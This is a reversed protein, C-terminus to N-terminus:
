PFTLILMSISLFAYLRLCTWYSVLTCKSALGVMEANVKTAYDTMEVYDKTACANLDRLLDYQSKTGAGYWGTLHRTHTCAYIRTRTWVCGTALICMVLALGDDVCASTRDGKKGLESVEWGRDM